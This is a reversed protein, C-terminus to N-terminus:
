AAKVYEIMVSFTENNLTGPKLTVMVNKEEDVDIEASDVNCKIAKVTYGELEKVTFKFEYGTNYPKETMTMREVDNSINNRVFYENSICSVKYEFTDGNESKNLFKYLYVGGCILGAIIALTLIFICIRKAM